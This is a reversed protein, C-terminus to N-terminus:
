NQTPSINRGRNKQSRQHDQPTKAGRQGSLFGSKEMAATTANLVDMINGGNTIHAQIEASADELDLGTIWAVLGRVTTAIKLNKSGAMLNVGYEELECVADFTMEPVDYEKGNITVTSM